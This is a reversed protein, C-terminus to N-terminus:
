KEPNFNNLAAAIQGSLDTFLKDRLKDVPTIGSDSRLLSQLSSYNREDIVYSNNSQISPYLSRADGEYSAYHMKDSESSSLRQSLLIEGTQTSILQYSMSISAFNNKQYETYNVRKDQNVTEGSPTKVKQREFGTRQYKELKGDVKQYESFTLILLGKIGNRDHLEKLMARDPSTSGPKIFGALTSNVASLKHIKLFRDNKKLINDIMANEFEAADGSYNPMKGSHVAVPYQACALAKERLLAAEKYNGADKLVNDFGYWASRCRAARLDDNARRYVPENRAEFYQIKVDQFGPNVRYVDGLATAAADFNEDMLLLTGEKYQENLAQQMLVKVDKYNPDRLSIKEWERYADMYRRQSFFSSGNTYLPELTATNLYSRTDKFDPQIKHIETFVRKAEEFNKEGILKQGQEYRETLYLERANEYNRQTSYDINLDIGAYKVMNKFELMSLYDYVAKYYDGRNYAQNVSQALEELYLQGSRKLGAKYTVENPKKISAKYYLDAAEKFMGASEYQQAQNGMKKVVCGVLLSGALFLMLLVMGYRHIMTRFNLQLILIQKSFVRNTFNREM